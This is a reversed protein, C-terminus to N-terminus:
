HDKLDGGSLERLLEGREKCVAQYWILDEKLLYCGVIFSM